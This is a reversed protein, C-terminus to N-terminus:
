SVSYRFAVNVPKGRTQFIGLTQESNQYEFDSWRLHLIEGRRLGTYRAFALVGALEVNDGMAKITEEIQDCSIYVEFPYLNSM